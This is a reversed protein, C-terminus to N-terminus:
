RQGNEIEDNIEKTGKRIYYVMIILFVLVTCAGIWILWKVIHCFIIVSLIAVVLIGLVWCLTKANNDM